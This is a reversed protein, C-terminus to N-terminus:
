RKRTSESNEETRDSSFIDELLPATFQVKLSCSFTVTVSEATDGSSVQSTSILAWFLLRERTLHKAATMSIWASSLLLCDNKDIVTHSHAPPNWQQIACCSIWTLIPPCNVMNNNRAIAMRHAVKWDLEDVSMLQAVGGNLLPCQDHEKGQLVKFYVDSRAGWRDFDLWEGRTRKACIYLSLWRNIRQARRAYFYLMSILCLFPASLVPLHMIGYM